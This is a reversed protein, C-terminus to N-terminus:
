LKIVLNAFKLQALKIIAYYINFYNWENSENLIFLIKYM